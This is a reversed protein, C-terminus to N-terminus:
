AEEKYVNETIKPIYGITIKHENQIRAIKVDCRNQYQIANKLAYIRLTNACREVYTIQITRAFETSLCFCRGVPPKKTPPKKTPPKKTPPKKKTQSIPKM